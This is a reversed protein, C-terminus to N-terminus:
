TFSGGDKLGKFPKNKIASGKNFAKNLALGVAATTVTTAITNVAKSGHKTLLNKVPKASTEATTLQVFDKELRLRSIATKLEDDSLKKAKSAPKSEKQKSRTTRLQNASNRVGWKMGRKGFHELIDVDSEVATM